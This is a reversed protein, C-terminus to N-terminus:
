GAGPRVCPTANVVSMGRYVSCPSRLTGHPPQTRAARRDISSRVTTSPRQTRSSRPTSRRRPNPLTDHVTLLRRRRDHEASFGLHRRSPLEESTQIVTRGAEHQRSRGADALGAEPRRREDGARAAPRRTTVVRGTSASAWNANAPSRSTTPSAAGSTSAARGGGCRRANATTKSKSSGDASGPSGATTAAETTPASRTNRAAPESTIATSSACHISSGDRAASVKGRQATETVDVSDSQQGRRPPVLVRDSCQGPCEGAIGDGVDVDPRQADGRQVPGHDIPEAHRQPARSQDPQVLHRSAVRQERELDNSARAIVGLEGDVAIQRHQQAGPQRHERGAGSLHRHRCSGQGSRCSRQEFLDIAVDVGLQVLGRRHLHDLEVAVDNSEGM